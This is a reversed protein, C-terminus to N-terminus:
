WVVLNILQRVVHSRTLALLVISDLTGPSNAPWFLHSSLCSLSASKWQGPFQPSVPTLWVVCVLLSVPKNIKTKQKQTDITEGEHNTTSSYTTLLIDRTSIYSRGAPLSLNDWPRVNTILVSASHPAHNSGRLIHYARHRTHRGDINHHHYRLTHHRLPLTLTTTTHHLITLTHLSRFLM